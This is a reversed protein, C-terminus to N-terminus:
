QGSCNQLVLAHHDIQVCRNTNRNHLQGGQKFDWYISMNKMLAEKCPYLGPVNGTGPDVLCRNDNYKHSKIGGIYLEGNRPLLYELSWLLQLLGYLYTPLGSVNFTNKNTRENCRRKYVGHFSTPM